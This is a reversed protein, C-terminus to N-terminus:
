PRPPLDGGKGRGPYCFGMPVIAVLAENYFTETSMGLWDRLRKGSPDNFPIGTKHVATGPAQGVILIKAKPNAQFVPRPGLPLHEACHECNHIRETLRIFKSPATVSM